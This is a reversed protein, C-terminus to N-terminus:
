HYGNRQSVIILISTPLYLSLGMGALKPCGPRFLEMSKRKAADLEYSLFKRYYLKLDFLEYAQVAAVTDMAAVGAKNAAAFAAIFDPPLEKNAVWVAFVFPLGTLEMWAAGLDYCFPTQLRQEFARDGIVLGATRDKILHRFDDRTDAFVPYKKWFKALLIKLLAVSTRSQYDLLV